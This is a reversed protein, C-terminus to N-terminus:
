PPAAEFLIDIRRNQARGTDTANPAVPDAAGRGEAAISTEPLARALAARITEARAASLKFASAFAVTRVPRDDAYGIVRVSGTEPKLAAAVGSLLGGGGM